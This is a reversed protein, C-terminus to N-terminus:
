PRLAKELFAVTERTSKARAAEDYAMAYGQRGESLDAHRQSGDASGPREVLLRPRSPGLLLYPCKRTSPYQPYFRPAGLSPVTWAHYAGPYISSRSRCRSGARRPTPSIAGAGKRRASQRGERGVADPDARGHLGQQALSAMSVRRITPSMLPLSAGRGAGTRCAAARFGDSLAVEGGFSFGVIAIRSADIKRITPWCGFAGCLGRRRGVGMASRREFRRPASLM